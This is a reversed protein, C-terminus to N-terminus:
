PTNNQAQFLAYQCFLVKRQQLDDEEEGCEKCQNRKFKM